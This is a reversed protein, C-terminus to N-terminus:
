FEITHTTMTELNITFLCGSLVKGYACVIKLVENVQLSGIVAPTSGVVGLVPREIGETMFDEQPFIEEMSRGNEGYHFVSVQGYFTGIAGFVYPKKMKGCVDNVLYRTAMNDCADVVIDYDRIINEANEKIIFYGYLDIKVESNLKLIRERACEVKVKGVEDEVYLVQRQLNSESVVDGDVLGLRGVGAAALYLAIPSGLGGVGIVLVKARALKRQGEKGIQELM